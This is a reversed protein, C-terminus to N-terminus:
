SVWVEEVPPLIGPQNLDYVTLHWLIWNVGMGMNGQNRKKQLTM